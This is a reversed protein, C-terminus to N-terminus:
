DDLNNVDPVLKPSTDADQYPGGVGQVVNVAEGVEHIKPTEYIM